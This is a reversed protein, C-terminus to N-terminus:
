DAKRLREYAARARAADGRSGARGGYRVPLYVERLARLADPDVTEQNAQEIQLTNMSAEVRGGRARILALARRYWLRVGDGASM